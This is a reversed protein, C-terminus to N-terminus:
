QKHDGGAGITVKRSSTQNKRHFSLIQAHHQHQDEDAPRTCQLHIKLLSIVKQVYLFGLLEILQHSVENLFSESCDAACSTNSRRQGKAEDATVVHHPIRLDM